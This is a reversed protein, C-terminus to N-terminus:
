NLQMCTEERLYKKQVWGAPLPKYAYGKKKGHIVDQDVTDIDAHIWGGSAKNPHVLDDKHALGLSTYRTGPGSRIHVAKATM